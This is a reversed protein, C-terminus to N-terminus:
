FASCRVAVYPVGSLGEVDVCCGFSYVLGARCIHWFLGIHIGFSGYSYVLLARYMRLCSEVNTRMLALRSRFGNHIQLFAM